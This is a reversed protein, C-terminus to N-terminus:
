KKLINSTTQTTTKSLERMIRKGLITVSPESVGAVEAISKRSLNWHELKSSVSIIAAALNRPRNSIFNPSTCIRSSINIAREALESLHLNLLFRNIYENVINANVLYKEDIPGKVTQFKLIQSKRPRLLVGKSLNFKRLLRKRNLSDIRNRIFKESIDQGKLISVVKDLYMDEKKVILRFINEDISRQLLKKYIPPKINTQKMLDDISDMVNTSFHNGTEKEQKELEELIINWDFNGSQVLKIMDYLDGERDTIAKLLFIDENALLRLKLKHSNGFIREDFKARNKMRESLYFKRIIVNHFVEIDSRNEKFFKRFPQVRTDNKSLNQEDRSRYGMNELAKTIVTVAENTDLVIDCDKTRDKLGKIRMNEGGILYVTVDHSVKTSIEEFLNPYVDPLKYLDENIHYLEAKERFEKKPPFLKQNFVPNNRLYNEIDGWVDVIALKRAIKKINLLDMKDKNKIYFLISMIMGNKDYTKAATLIAHVLVDELTLDTSQEVFYEYTTHYELGYESFLSYATQDGHTKKGKPVRKLITSNDEYIVEVFEEHRVNEKRETKMIRALLYLPDDHSASLSVMDNERTVIGISQLDALSKYITALSINTKKQLDDISLPEVLAAFIEENSDRLLTTINYKKSIDRVLISKTNNKLYVKSDTKYIFDHEALENLLYNLQWRKIKSLSMLNERDNVGKAINDLIILATPKM